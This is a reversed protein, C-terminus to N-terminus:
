AAGSGLLELCNDRMIKRVEVEDFGQLVRLFDTPQPCGEGHPWDSGFLIREVGILDALARVDEEVYPTVWIHRRVTDLPDEAFAWPTQNAQKRLRKVLRPLWDSGNEVSAVRLTPHRTFVGHVILSAMSDHIARDAVLIRGLVDHGTFAEFVAKGGWAASFREYGSDGLHFAVPVSAEALRAWVPDHLADGLSRASGNPAPVPAPRVHVMRAGRELLREVERVAEDPDALSLMPVAILRDRYSYGWDEALWANFAGLSAM